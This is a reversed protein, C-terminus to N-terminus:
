GAQLPAVERATLPALALEALVENLSELTVATPNLIEIGIARGDAARDVLIEGERPEVRVGSEGPRRPLYVYAAWPRGQRYTVELFRDRM